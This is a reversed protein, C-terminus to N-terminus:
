TAPPPGYQNPEPQGPRSLWWILLIAALFQLLGMVFMMGMGLAMAPQGLAEPGSATRGIAGIGIIGALSIIMLGVSLLFPILIYWGPRGTDHMRRFGAALLPIFTALQFLTGLPGGSAQDNGPGPEAGAGFLVADILGLVIVGLVVFLVFWWYEPRSARGAFTFYNRFCTKIADVFGM